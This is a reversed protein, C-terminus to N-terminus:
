KWHHWVERLSNSNTNNFKTFSKMESPM